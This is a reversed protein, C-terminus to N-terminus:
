VIVAQRRTVVLEVIRAVCLLFYVATMSVDVGAVDKPVVVAVAVVITACQPPSEFDSVKPLCLYM